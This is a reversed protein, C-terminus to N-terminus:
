QIQMARIHFGTCKILIFGILFIDYECFQLLFLFNLFYEFHKKSALLNELIEHCLNKLFYKIIMIIM